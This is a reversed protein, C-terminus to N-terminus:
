SARILQWVKYSAPQNVPERLQYAMGLSGEEKVPINAALADWERFILFFRHSKGLDAISHGSL